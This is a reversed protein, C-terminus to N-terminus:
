KGRSVLFVLVLAAGILLAVGPDILSSSRLPSGVTITPTVYVDGPSSAGSIAGGASFGPLLM